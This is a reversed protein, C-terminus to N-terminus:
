KDFKTLDYKKIINCIKNVYDPDTAYGGKKILKITKKYSKNGVVGDYRLKTGNMAGSLYASHDAISEAFTDYARFTDEITYWKKNLFEQTTKTFTAGKWASQWTNGSLTAKMGFLNRAEMGLASTGYGSELIAQATTVSALIGNKKMDEQALRGIKEIFEEETMTNTNLSGDINFYYRVGDITVWQSKYAAGREGLAGTKRFFYRKGNLNYWGVMIKGSLGAGGAKRFYYTQGNVTQLGKLIYGNEDFYFTKGGIKAFKNKPYTQDEYVYRLRGDVTTWNGNKKAAMCTVSLGLSMIFLAILCLLGVMGRRKIMKM